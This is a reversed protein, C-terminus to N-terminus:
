LACVRDSIINFNHIGVTNSTGDFAVYYLLSGLAFYYVGFLTSTSNKYIGSVAVTNLTLYNELASIETIDESSDSIVTIYAEGLNSNRINVM